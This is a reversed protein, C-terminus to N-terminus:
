AYLDVLANGRRPTSDSPTLTPPPVGAPPAAPANARSHDFGLEFRVSDVAIGRKALTQRFEPEHQELADLTEAREGRVIATLKGGRLALQIAMRGLEAPQLELTLRKVGPALHLQIQRLVEEARELVATGAREPTRTAESPRAAAPQAREVPPTEVPPPAAGAPPAPPAVEAAARAAGAVSAVASAASANGIAAPAPAAEAASTPSEEGGSASTEAAPPAPLPVEGNEQPAAERAAPAALRPGQESRYVAEEPHADETDPRERGFGARRASRREGELKELREAGTGRTREVAREFEKAFLTGTAAGPARAPETPPAFTPLVPLPETGLQKGGQGSALRNTEM